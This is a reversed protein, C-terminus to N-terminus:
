NRIAIKKRLFPESAFKLKVPTEPELDWHGLAASEMMKIGEEYGLKRYNEIIDQLNKSPPYHKVTIFPQGTIDMVKVDHLVFEYFSGEDACTMRSLRIDMSGNVLHSIGLAYCDDFQRYPTIILVPTPQSDVGMSAGFKVLGSYIPEVALVSLSTLCTVLLVLSKIRLM